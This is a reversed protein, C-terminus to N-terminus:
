TKFRVKMMPSIDVDGIKWSHTGLLGFLMPSSTANSSIVEANRPLNVDLTGSMGLGLKALKQKDADTIRPSSITM